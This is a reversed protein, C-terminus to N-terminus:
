CAAAGGRRRSLEVRVAGPEPAVPVLGGSMEDRQLFVDHLEVAVVALGITSPLAARAGLVDPHERVFTVAARVADARLRDDPTTFGFRWRDAQRAVGAKHPDRGDARDAAADAELGAAAFIRCDYTRCTRPRHAYISCGGDVLMPCHGREDYGMLVHGRALRPAPFLLQAPIHALADTEDPGIHVFQSATCCATCTGCPVDSDREGRLAHQMEELWPSFDGAELEHEHAGEDAM